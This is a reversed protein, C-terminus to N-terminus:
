PQVVGNITVTGNSGFGFLCRDRQQCGSSFRPSTINITGGPGNVSTSLIQSNTLTTNKADLAITGGSSITGEILPITSTTLQTDTLEIKKAKVQISGGSVSGLEFNAQTTLTSQQSTFLAGADIQITGGVFHPTSVDLRTGILSM